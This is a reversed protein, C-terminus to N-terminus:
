ESFVNVIMLYIFIIIVRLYNTFHFSLISILFIMKDNNHFNIDYKLM